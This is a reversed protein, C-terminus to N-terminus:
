FNVKQGYDVGNVYLFLKEPLEEFHRQVVAMILHRIEEEGVTTRCTPIQPAALPRQPHAQYVISGDGYILLIQSGHNGEPVYEYMIRLKKLNEPDSLMSELQLHRTPEKGQTLLLFALM